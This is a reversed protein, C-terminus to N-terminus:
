QSQLVVSHRAIFHPYITPFLKHKIATRVMSIQVSVVTREQKM